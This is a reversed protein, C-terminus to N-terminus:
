KTANILIHLKTPATINEEMAVYLLDYIQIYPYTYIYVTYPTIGVSLPQVPTFSLEM